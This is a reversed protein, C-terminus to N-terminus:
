RAPRVLAASRIESDGADRRVEGVNCVFCLDLVEKRATWTPGRHTIDAGPLHHRLFRSALVDLQYDIWDSM